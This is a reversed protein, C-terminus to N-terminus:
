REIDVRDDLAWGRDDTGTADFSGRPAPKLQVRPVGARALYDRVAQSRRDSLAMNYESTGMGCRRGVISIVENSSKLREALRDLAPQAEKPPMSMDHAFYIRVAAGTDDTVPSPIAGHSVPEDDDGLKKRLTRARLEAMAKKNTTQALALEALKVDGGKKEASALQSKLTETQRTLEGVILNAEGIKKQLEKV